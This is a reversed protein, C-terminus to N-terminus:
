GMIRHVGEVIVVVSFNLVAATLGIAEFPHDAGRKIFWQMWKVIAFFPKIVRLTVAGVVFAPLWLYVLLAAPMNVAFSYFLGWDYDNKEFIQLFSIKAYLVIAGVYILMVTSIGFVLALILQLIINRNLDLCKRVIFLSLYDSVITLVVVPIFTELVFLEVGISQWRGISLFFGLWLVGVILTYLSSRRFSNVSLLPTGYISDFAGVVAARLDFRVYPEAKLWNSLAKKAPGSAKKDIFVFITYIGGSLAYPLGLGVLQFVRELQSGM